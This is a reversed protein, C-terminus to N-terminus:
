NPVPKQAERDARERLTDAIWQSTDSVPESGHHNTVDANMDVTQRPKGVARDLIAQAAQLAVRDDDSGMLKILVKLAKESEDKALLTLDRDKKPRGSPNGSQGPKFPKLNAIRKDRIATADTM